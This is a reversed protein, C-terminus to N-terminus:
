SPGRPYGRCAPQMGTHIVGLADAGNPLRSILNQRQLLPATGVGDGVVAALMLPPVASFTTGSVQEYVTSIRKRVASSPSRAISCRRRTVPGRAMNGAGHRGHRHEASAARHRAGFGTHSQKRMQAIGAETPTQLAVQGSAFPPPESAAYVTETPTGVTQATPIVPQSQCLTRSRVSGPARTRRALSSAAATASNGSRRLLRSPQLNPRNEPASRRQASLRSEEM